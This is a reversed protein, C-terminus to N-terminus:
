FQFNEPAHNAEPLWTEQIFHWTATDGDFHLLATSLRANNSHASKKAGRQYEEYTATVYGVDIEHRVAVNRIHIGFNPSAGYGSGIQRILADRTLVNGAPQINFFDTQLKSTLHAELEADNNPLTGNLWDELFRHLRKIEANARELTTTM